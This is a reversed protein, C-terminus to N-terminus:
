KVKYNSLSKGCYTLLSHCSTISAVCMKSTAQLSTSSNKAIAVALKGIVKADGELEAVDKAVEELDKTAQTTVKEDAIFHKQYKTISRAIEIVSECVNDIEGISLTPVTGGKMAKRKKGDKEITVYQIKCARTATLLNEPAVNDAVDGATYAKDGMMVVSSKAEFGNIKTKLTLPQDIGMNVTGLVVAQLAKAATYSISDSSLKEVEKVQNEVNTPVQKALKGTYADVFLELAKAGKVVEVKGDVQLNLVTDGLEVKKEDISGQQKGAREQMSKAAKELKPGAAFVKQMFKRLSEWAGKIASKIADWIRVLADKIGEISVTTASARETAGGFSEASPVIRADPAGMRGMLGSTAVQLM